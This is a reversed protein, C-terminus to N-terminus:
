LCRCKDNDRKQKYCDMPTKKVGYANKGYSEKKAPKTDLCARDFMAGHSVDCVIGRRGNEKEQLLM